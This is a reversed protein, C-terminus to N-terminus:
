ETLRSAIQVLERLCRNGASLIPTQLQHWKKYEVTHSLDKRSSHIASELEIMDIIFIVIFVHKFTYSVTYGLIRNEQWKRVVIGRMTYYTYLSIFSSLVLITVLFQKIFSNLWSMLGLKGEKEQWKKCSDRAYYLIYLSFFLFCFLSSFNEATEGLCGWACWFFFFCFLSSFSKSVTM